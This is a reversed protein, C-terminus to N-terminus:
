SPASTPLMVQIPATLKQRAVLPKPPGAGLMPEEAGHGVNDTKADSEQKKLSWM